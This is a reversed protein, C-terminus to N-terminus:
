DDDGHDLGGGNGSVLSSLAQASVLGKPSQQWERAGYALVVFLLAEDLFEHVEGLWDGSATRPWAAVCVSSAPAGALGRSM